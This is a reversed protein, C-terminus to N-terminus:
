NETEEKAKPKKAVPTNNNDDEETETALLPPLKVLIMGANDDHGRHANATCHISLAVNALSEEDRLMADAAHEYREYLPVTRTPPGCDRSSYSERKTNLCSVM